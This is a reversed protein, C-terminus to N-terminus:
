QRGYLTSIYRRSLEVFPAEHEAHVIKKVITPQVLLKVITAPQYHQYHDNDYHYQPLASAVAIFAFLAIFKFAM